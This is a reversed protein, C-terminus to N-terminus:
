PAPPTAGFRAIYEALAAKLERERAADTKEPLPVNALSIRCFRHLCDAAIAERKMDEDM